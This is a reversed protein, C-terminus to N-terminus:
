REIYRGDESGGFSRKFLRRQCWGLTQMARPVTQLLVVSASRDALLRCTQHFVICQFTDLFFPHSALAQTLHGVQGRSFMPLDTGRECTFANPRGRSPCGHVSVVAGDSTYEVSVDEECGSLAEGEHSEGAQRLEKPM